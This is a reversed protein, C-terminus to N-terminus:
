SASFPDVCSRQEEQSAAARREACDLEGRAIASFSPLAMLAARNSRPHTMKRPGVWPEPMMSPLSTM